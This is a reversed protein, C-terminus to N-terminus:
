DIFIRYQAVGLPRPARRRLADSRLTQLLRRGRPDLEMKQEVLWADANAWQERVIRAMGRLHLHLSVDRIAWTGALVLSLATAAARSAMRGHSLAAALVVRASVCTAAALFAAAPSMIVDKTYPYSIVANAALVMAFLLVIRDDRDFRREMWAQRRQWAFVAILLTASTCALVNVIASPEPDRLTIGYTLRFVGGRPEGFLVSLASTVVNYAYFGIANSGFRQQLQAPELRHFGYGSARETLQPAGVELVAFRLLFYGLLLGCLVVIGRKSLGRGGLLTAGVLIVWVLLGSEVTLAAIVFLVAALLDVWWRHQLGALTMAAFCCLLITLYTNVPFAEDVTGRFAHHGVLVALGFPVVAADRWRRPRVVSLFLLLLATVQAVQVGRFWASYDGGSADFVVKLEAFLLPRLYARQTFESVLLDRWPTHLKLMNGFSDSLQIPIGLLFYGITAALILACAASTIAPGRERM